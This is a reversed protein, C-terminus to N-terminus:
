KKSRHKRWFYCLGTFHHWLLGTKKLKYSKQQYHHIVKLSPLCIVEYGENKMRICYDADEPGYFIREDLQGTKDFAERRIMQCAGLLYGPKFPSESDIFEKYINLSSM